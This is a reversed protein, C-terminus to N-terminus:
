SAAEAWAVAEDVAEGSPQRRAEAELEARRRDDVQDRAGQLLRAVKEREQALLPIGASDRVDAASVALRITWEPQGEVSAVHALAEMAEAVGRPNELEAYVRLSASCRARALAPDQAISLRGLELQARAAQPTNGVEQFLELSQQYKQRAEENDGEARALDAMLGLTLASGNRDERARHSALSEELLRRAESHEGRLRAVNALNNLALARAPENGLERWLELSERYLRYAEDHDKRRLAMVGVNNLANAVGWRDDAARNLELSERFHAEAAGYDAQADALIGAAYLAKLHIKPPVGDPGTFLADLWRRGETLYGRAEWFRWLAGALRLGEHRRGSAVAWDLAARFNDHDAELRRLWERQQAGVLGTEATEALVTLHELHRARIVEEEGSEALREAAYERITELMSLRVSAGPLTTKHLLSQDLLSQLLDLARSELDHGCVAEATEVESGGPFVSMRRFLRREPEELLDHSWAIAARLTRHRTPLDPGGGTLLPLRKELRALMAPPPLLKVRVAALEIALPLGDLRRCIAAVATLSEATLEFAPDVDRAREVFLRVAPSDRLRDPPADLPPAALPGVPFEREGRVRLPARSTVLIKLGPCAALLEVVRPAAGLVHEFNDLVLLLEREGLLDSLREFVGRRGVEGVDFAQGIASWVLHPETVTGLPVWRAGDPFGTAATHALELALRTKGTGAAGVVTLLRHDQRELLEILEKVEAERGVIPEAPAPLRARAPVSDQAPAGGEASDSAEEADARARDSDVEPPTSQTREVGGPTLELAWALVLAVPLGLGALVILLTTTWAPLRLPEVVVDGVQIVAWAVVAYVAVVRFVKRRKLERFFRRVAFDAM